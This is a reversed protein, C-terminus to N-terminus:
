REVKKGRADAKEDTFHPISDLGYASITICGGPRTFQLAVARNIEQYSCVCM